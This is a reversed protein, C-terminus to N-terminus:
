ISKGFNYKVDQSCLRTMFREITRPLKKKEIAIATANKSKYIVEEILDLGTDIDEETVFAKINKNSVIASRKKRKKAM